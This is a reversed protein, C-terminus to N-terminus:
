RSRPLAQGVQKRKLLPSNTHDRGAELLDFKNVMKELEAEGDPRLKTVKQINAATMDNIEQGRARCRAITRATLAFRMDKPGDVLELIASEAHDEKLAETRLVRTFGGPRNAYRERLTGFVKPLIEDPRQLTLLLLLM